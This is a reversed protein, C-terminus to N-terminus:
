KMGEMEVARTDIREIKLGKASGKQGVRGDLARNRVTQLKIKLHEDVEKITGEFVLCGDRHM